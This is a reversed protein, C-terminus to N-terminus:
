PPVVTMESIFKILQFERLPVAPQVSVAKAANPFWRPQKAKRLLQRLSSEGPEVIQQGNGKKDKLAGAWSSKAALVLNLAVSVPFSPGHSSQRRFAASHPCM